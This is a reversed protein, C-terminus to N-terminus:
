PRVTKGCSFIPQSTSFVVLVVFLAGVFLAKKWPLLASTPHKKKYRAPVGVARFTKPPSSHSHGWVREFSCVSPSVPSLLFFPERASFFLPFFDFLFDAGM